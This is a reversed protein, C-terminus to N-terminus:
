AANKVKFVLSPQFHKELKNSKKINEIKELPRLNKLAWCRKFDRDEPSQFNFASVPIIHELHWYSGYNEWTMHEDFQKELHRKLQDITYGVLDEWHRGSKAGNLSRSIGRSINNNLKGKPTSRIKANCKKTYSKVKEHNNERWLKTWTSVKEKNNERYIKAQESAYKKNKEYWAKLRSTIREKNKERYEKDRLAIQDKNKKYYAKKRTSVKEKNFEVYAKVKSSIAVKNDKYYANKYEKECVMCWTNYGDKRGKHKNFEDLAKVSGCKSCAKEEVL